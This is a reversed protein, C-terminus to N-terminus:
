TIKEFVQMIITQYNTHPNKCKILGVHLIDAINQQTLNKDKRVGRIREYYKM